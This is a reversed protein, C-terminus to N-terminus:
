LFGVHAAEIPDQGPSTRLDEAPEGRCFTQGTVKVPRVPTCLDSRHCVGTQGTGVCLHQLSDRLTQQKGYVQALLFM